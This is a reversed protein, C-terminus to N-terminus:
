QLSIVNSIFPVQWVRIVSLCWAKRFCDGENLAMLILTFYYEKSSSESIDAMNLSLPLVSTMHICYFRGSLCEWQGWLLNPNEQIEEWKLM